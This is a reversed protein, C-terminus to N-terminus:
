KRWGGFGEISSQEKTGEILNYSEVSGEKKFYMLGEIGKAKAYSYAEDSKKSLSYAIVYGQKRYHRALDIAIQAMEDDWVFLTTPPKDSVQNKSYTQLICQMNIAMGVAPLDYGFASLLQDYRGGEVIPEGVGDVYGQFMVGTYYSEYSLISFDFVVEKEVQFLTLLEYMTELRELAEKGSPTEVYKKVERLFGIDGSQQMLRTLIMIKDQTADLSNLKNKLAVADKQDIAEFIAKEEEKSAGVDQLMAKLFATSGIHLKFGEVGAQRLAEVALMIVEADSLCSADGVLEIGVQTFEHLKGQYREPYRFTNAVYMYRQPFPQSSNQTAVVRAIARTMDSRLAVIEGQQNMWKYLSPNQVGESGLTFVDIYEFTPTEILQYHHQQFLTKLRDQITHKLRSEDALTDKVGEPLHLLYNKM